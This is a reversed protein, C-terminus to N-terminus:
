QSLEVVFIGTPSGSMTGTRQILIKRGNDFLALSEGNAFLAKPPGGKVSIAMYTLSGDEYSTGGPNNIFLLTQGDPMWTLFEFARALENRWLRRPNTGDANVLWLEARRTDTRAFSFALQYGDPSWAMQGTAFEVENTLTIVNGAGIDKLYLRGACQDALHQGDPSLTTYFSFVTATPTMQPDICGLTQVPKSTRTRSDWAQLMGRELFLAQGDRLIQLHAGGFPMTTTSIPIRAGSEIDLEYLMTPQHSIIEAYVIQRGNPLWGLPDGDDALKRELGKSFSGLWLGTGVGGKSCVYHENDPAISVAASCGQLDVQTIKVVHLKSVDIPPVLTPVMGSSLQDANNLSKPAFLSYFVVIVVALALLSTGLIISKIIKM